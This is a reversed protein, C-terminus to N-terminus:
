FRILLHLILHIIQAVSFLAVGVRYPAAATDNACAPSLALRFIKDDLQFLSAELSAAM